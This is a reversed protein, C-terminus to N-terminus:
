ESFSVLRINADRTSREQLYRSLSGKEIEYNAQLRQSPHYEYGTRLLFLKGAQWQKVRSAKGEIVFPIAAIFADIGHIFVKSEIFEYTDVAEIPPRLTCIIDGSDIGSDIYHITVGMLEPKGELLCYLNCNGGRAYPSLGTHLNIIGFKVSEGLALMPERLLNTGNVCMMEPQHKLVFDIALKANVNDVHCTPVDPFSQRAIFEPYQKELALESKLEYSQLRFRVYLHHILVWPKLFYKKKTLLRKIASQQNIGESSVVVIGVLDTQEHLRNALYAQYRGPCCLLITKVNPKLEEKPM